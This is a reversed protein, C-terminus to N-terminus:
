DEVGSGRYQHLLILDLHDVRGDENIDAPLQTPTPGPILGAPTRAQVLLADLYVLHPRSAQPVDCLDTQPKM